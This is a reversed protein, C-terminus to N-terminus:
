SDHGEELSVVKSKLLYLRRLLRLKLVCFNMLPKYFMAKLTIM